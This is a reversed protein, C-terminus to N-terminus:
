MKNQRIDAAKDMIEARSIGVAEYMAFINELPTEPPVTHSAALIYGGGDATMSQVLLEIEKRVQDASGHPLLEQTDVGGMFTLKGGFERKLELPNMGPCNSQIPNLVDLGMEILDPIIPRISGCSHYAVWLKHAKGAQFIPEMYPRIKERWCMPSMMMSKQGGVDDGTWLWDIAFRRCAEEALLLSFHATRERLVKAANSNEALDLLANEMGRLRCLQEFLCPSTDCGVFMEKAQAMVPDMNKLLAEMRNDPYRYSLIQEESANQLPSYRIQNFVGEKIWEIGWDDIHTEGEHEHIIGEMAHNNGVWAQCVDNGMARAVQSPSIELIIGLRVATDPQFWMFIPVRDVPQRKLAAYVREKSNMWKGKKWDVFNTEDLKGNVMYKQVRIHRFYFISIPSASFFISKGLPLQL